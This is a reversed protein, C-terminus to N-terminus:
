NDWTSTTTNNTDLYCAVYPKGWAICSDKDVDNFCYGGESDVYNCGICKNNNCQGDTCACNDGNPTKTSPEPAPTVPSKTPAQTPAETPANTPITSPSNTPNDLYCAVYPKGWAICSDKDVDNFCYGGESDFFNCGVCKNDTCAGDTCSCSDSPANTPADTPAVPGPSKTTPADTPAVPGWPKTTPADTPAVPGPSKTIPADTPAVPGWPETTPIDTPKNTPAVPDPSNTTPEDTPAVPGPSKTTPSITTPTDLYCAEYPKGWALCSDGKTTLMTVVLASTIQVLVMLVACSGSPANTPASTPTNTPAKTPPKTPPMTPPKTPADTPAVPGSPKTTPANPQETTPTDLYCAVYPKGWAICSDKDVDNFCYGGESDVYNCGICKDNTCAGDTCSCNDQAMAVAAIYMAIVYGVKM